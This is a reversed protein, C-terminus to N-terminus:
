RETRFDEARKQIARIDDGRKRPLLSILHKRDQEAETLKLSAELDKYFKGTTPLYSFTHFLERNNSIHHGECTGLPFEGGCSDSLSALLWALVLLTTESCIPQHGV